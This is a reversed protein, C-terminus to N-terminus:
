GGSVNDDHGMPPLLAPLHREKQEAQGHPGQARRLLWLRRGASRWQFIKAGSPAGLDAPRYGGSAPTFSQPRRQSGPHRSRLETSLAAFCLEQKGERATCVRDASAEWRVRGYGVQGRGRWM